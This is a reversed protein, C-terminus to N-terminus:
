SNDGLVDLEKPYKRRGTWLMFGALLSYTVGFIIFLWREYTESKGNENIISDMHQYFSTPLLGVIFAAIGTILAMYMIKKRSKFIIDLPTKGSQMNDAVVRGADYIGSPIGKITGSVRPYRASDTHLFEITFGDNPDLFDFALNAMNDQGVISALRPKTVDRTAKVIKQSLIKENNSFSFLIPDTGVIDKGNITETGNNWFVIITKSLRDVKNGKYLIDIDEEVEIDEKGIIRLSYKQISPKGRSRHFKYSFIGIAGIIAGLIGILSGVWGQNFFNFLEQAM